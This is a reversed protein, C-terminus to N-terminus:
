LQPFQLHLQATRWLAMVVTAVVLAVCGIAFSLREDRMRGFGEAAFGAVLGAVFGGAHARWDIAGGSGLGFVANIVILWLAMRLRAAALPTHRRRWNFAVFAGFIGFIAGSAGVGVVGVDGFAYSAAGAFLGTIVYLLSYRIRGFEEEMIRGFIWLAYCNFALHILGGHLFMSTFLRWYQGEAIGVLGTPSPAVAVAGGLKVLTGLPPGAFFSGAGGMAVEVVYMGVIAALLLATVSTAKADAVAIRRGPGKRFEKRAEAVCAPCHYGVPAPMMCDPCIPRGCRTCHVGTVVSPHRYCSETAPPPPMTPQPDMAMM